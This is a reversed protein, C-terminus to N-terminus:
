LDNVNKLKFQFNVQWQVDDIGYHKFAALKDFLYDTCLHNVESNLRETTQEILTQQELTQVQM